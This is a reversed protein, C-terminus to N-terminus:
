YEYNECTPYCFLEEDFPNKELENGITLHLSEDKNKIFNLFEIMEDIGEKDFFITISTNEIHSQITIM